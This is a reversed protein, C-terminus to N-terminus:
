VTNLCQAPLLGSDRVGGPYVPIIIRKAHLSSAFKKAIKRKM